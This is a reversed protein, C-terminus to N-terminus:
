PMALGTAQAAIQGINSNSSHAATITAFVDKTGAAFSVLAGANSSSRVNERILTAPHRFTGKGVEWETGTQGAISYMVTADGVGFANGFSQFQAVAGALAINGTGTTTTTEKCRDATLPM